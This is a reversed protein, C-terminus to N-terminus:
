WQAAAPAGQEIEAIRRVTGATVGDPLADAPFFGSEAIEVTRRPRQTWRAILYLAIHDGPFAAHNAYLGFLQPEGAFDIGVEEDMERRLAEPAAERREVGGGPFMWGPAYSHRVLLYAGAEDRVVGRVGLTLGRSIRFYPQLVTRSVARFLSRSMM